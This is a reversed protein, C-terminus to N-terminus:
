FPFVSSRSRIGGTGGGDVLGSALAVLVQEDSFTERSCDDVKMRARAGSCAFRHRRRPVDVSFCRRIARAVIWLDWSPPLSSLSTRGYFHLGELSTGEGSREGRSWPWLILVGLFGESPVVVDMVCSLSQCSVCSPSSIM